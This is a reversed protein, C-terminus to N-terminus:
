IEIWKDSKDAGILNCLIFMESILTRVDDLEGLLSSDHDSISISGDHIHETLKMGNIPSNVSLEKLLDFTNYVGQEENGECVLAYIGEGEDTDEIIYSYIKKGNYLFYIDDLTELDNLDPTSKNSYYIKM